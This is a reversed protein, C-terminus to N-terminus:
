SNSALTTGEHHARIWDQAQGCATKLDDNVLIRDFNPSQGWEWAAKKMREAVREPRDTGRGELRERLVEMSPTQVFISLAQEGLVERLKLGGVVDVDFLVIKGDAWLRELETKLTGYFRGPYVEEWEVMEKREIHGKFADVDIFFYDKGEAERGRPSRTTASISFGLPLKSQELLNRVITTKGSGSPASFIVAKGSM